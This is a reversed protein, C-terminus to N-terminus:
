ELPLEIYLDRVVDNEDRPLSLLPMEEDIDVVLPAPTPPIEYRMAPCDEYRSELDPTKDTIALAELGGVAGQAQEFLNDDHLAIRKDITDSLMPGLKEMLCDSFEALATSLQEAVLVSIKVNLREEENAWPNVAPVPAPQLPPFEERRQRKDARPAASPPPPMNETDKRRTSLAAPKTSTAEPLPPSAIYNEPGELTVQARQTLFNTPNLGKRKADFYKRNYAAVAQDAAAFDDIPRHGRCVGKPHYTICFPERCISGFEYPHGTCKHERRANEGEVTCWPMPPTSNGEADVTREFEEEKVPQRSSSRKRSGANAFGRGNDRFKRPGSM